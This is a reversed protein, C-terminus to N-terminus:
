TLAGQLNWPARMPQHIMRNAQEDDIFRQTSDDFRLPRGLRLSIKALNVLTTSRHGNAENLAFKRRTRISENFDTIVPPRLDPLGNVYRRTLGPVDTEWNPYLRGLPGELLPIKGESNADFVLECGDRYVLRVSRWSRVVDPHQQPGDPIVEIPSADDKGMVDQFPDVYHMGMDGLGGGDYDWYGRFTSHTRHPHYPKYPAPGLWLDYDLHDPVPEPTLGTKGTWYHKWPFGTAPGLNAKLPWGLLRHDAIRRLERATYGSRYLNGNMRFWTNVRLMRGTRRVADVVAEGEGITRTLPKECWVDKGARAAAVAMLGHWHPPTAIHIVDIDDRALVERYDRYGTCDGGGKEVAAQLREADVECVALTRSGGLGFHGGGMNGVGIIAKTLQESPPTHGRGGLVHRPVISFGFAAAATTRLMDRRTVRGLDPASPKSM